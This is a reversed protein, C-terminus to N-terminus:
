GNLPPGEKAIAGLRETLEAFVKPVTPFDISSLVKPVTPFDISSLVKMLRKVSDSNLVRFVDGHQNQFLVQAEIVVSSQLFSRPITFNEFTKFLM